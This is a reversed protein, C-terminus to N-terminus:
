MHSLRLCAIEISGLCASNLHSDLFKEAKSSCKAREVCCLSLVLMYVNGIILSNPGSMFKFRSGLWAKKM